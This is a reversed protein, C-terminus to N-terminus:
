NLKSQAFQQAAELASNLKSPDKGGAQAMDPRGGGGGGTQKAAERVWDGAKLGRNILSQPVRAVFSVKDDHVSGLLLASEPHKNKIVDMASRLADAGADEIAAVIIPGSQTEALVRAQEVAEGAQSKSQKRKAEKLERQKQALLERVKTRVTLPLDQEALATTLEHLASELEDGQLTELKAAQELLKQGAAAVQQAQPGAVATLRRVGKSVAEESVIAFAQAQGTSKLHTGGCFEVSYDYWQKNQPDAQMEDLSPGISVVRVRPPYREGFVARLGYIKLAEEQPAEAAHVLLDRRIDENVLSEIEAAQEVTVAADHSFDFRTKQDDVLSGKQQVGEGFLKRLKHNLIHTTTHHAMIKQRRDQDVALKCETSTTLTGSEVEGLHFWTDRLKVTDQIRFRVGNAELTGTDGVQGGAEAYFPTQDVVVAGREGEKLEDAPQFAGDREVFLQQVNANDVSLSEYGLFRTTALEVKQVLDLLTEKAEASTTKGRSMAQHHKWAQEFGEVDVTMGKEEAMLQTLDLPFGYTTLLDCAAQGAIVTGTTSAAVQEFHAIGRDLTASFHEEDARIADAVAQPNQKIEPFFGGMQEVVAPVLRYFFPENVGLHQRGYRVARRLIRKLVSDRGKDGIRAGDSLAFTLTRIHDALVRYAIDKNDTLSGGYPPAGTVEQIAAFLPTFIDTDYNSTKGQLVATVREFGMGTDVHKAPLPTLEGTTARNFQIFVLNWIEIVRADGANILKGGSMDPTLDIHIESCPGCPGTDGMEWFNDKAGFFQIHSPDIDTESRWLEAAEDDRELGSQPDGEFVTVYLRNKDLGWVETLLEWAWGIAEKKFYDGFSWNGLMEFFTHHYTDKGVDDLDNHKGGARICKQTNVARTYPRTGLGLFVDKFQNMGANAFLLTDDGHPVVPSSPVYTHGCKSVFFDIFQQRIDSSPIM